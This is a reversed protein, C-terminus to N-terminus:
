VILADKDLTKGIPLKQSESRVIFKKESDSITSFRMDRTEKKAYMEKIFAINVVADDLQIFRVGSKDALLIEDKQKDSIIYEYKDTLVHWKVLKIKQEPM